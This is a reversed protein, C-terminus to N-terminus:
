KENWLIVKSLLSFLVGVYVFGYTRPYLWLYLALLKVCLVIYFLVLLIYKCYALCDRNLTVFTHFGTEDAIM